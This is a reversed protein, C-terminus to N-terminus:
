LWRQPDHRWRRALWIISSWLCANFLLLAPTTVADHAIRAAAAGSFLSLLSTTFYSAQLLALGVFFLSTVRQRWDPRFLMLWLTGFIGLPYAILRVYMLVAHEIQIM